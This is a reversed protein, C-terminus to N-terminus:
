RHLTESHLKRWDGRIEGWKLWFKKRVAVNEVVRLRHLTESHLKRGDGRIEDWKLWFRKRVALNEVVRLRHGERLTLLLNLFKL